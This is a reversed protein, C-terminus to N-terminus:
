LIPIQFSPSTSRKLKIKPNATNANAVTGEYCGPSVGLRSIDVVRIALLSWAGTVSSVIELMAAICLFKARQDILRHLQILLWFCEGGLCIFEWALVLAPEM